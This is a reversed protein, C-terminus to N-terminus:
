PIPSFPAFAGVYPKPLPAAYGGAKSTKMGLRALTTALGVGAAVGDIVPVQFRLWFKEALAAMGACGLVICDAGDEKLAREIEHGLKEQAGAPDSELLLVPLESARVRACRRDLGYRLLNDEIIPISRALTTVVTFRTGLMSALHFAAEAIGVVPANSIARAADLGTDDFCAIVHADAGATEAEIIRALMGPVAYAGDVFGEISPPGFDPQTVTMVADPPAVMRAAAAIGQTMSATTNPNVIHLRM